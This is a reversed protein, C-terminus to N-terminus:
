SGTTAEDGRRQRAAANPGDGSHRRQEIRHAVAVALGCIGLGGIVDLVFHNGTAVVAVAMTMTGTAAIAMAWTSRRWCLVWLALAYWGIHFSPFAAYPNVLGSPHAVFHQRSAASVTDTFGDLMRPPAVPFTAFFVLGVIGSIVLADRLVRYRGRDLRWTAGLALLVMPWYTWVYVSNVLRRGFGPAAIVEQAGKELDVNLVREWRLVEDAHGLAVERAGSTLARVSMYAVFAM